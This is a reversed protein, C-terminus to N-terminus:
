LKKNKVNEKKYSKIYHSMNLFFTNEEMFFPKISKFNEDEKDVFLNVDESPILFYKFNDFLDNVGQEMENADELDYDFRDEKNMKIGKRQKSLIAISLDDFSFFNDDNHVLLITHDDEEDKCFLAISYVNVKELMIKYVYSISNCIGKNKDELLVDRVQKDIDRSNNYLEDIDFELLDYLYDFIRKRREYLSLSNYDEDKFIEKIKTDIIPELEKWKEM